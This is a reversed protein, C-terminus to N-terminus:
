GRRRCAAARQWPRSAPAAPELAKPGLRPVKLLDRRLRFRATSPAASFASACRKVDLLARRTHDTITRLLWDVPLCEHMRDLHLLDLLDDEDAVVDVRATPEVSVHEPEGHRGCRIPQVEGADPRLVKPRGLRSHHRMRSERAPEVEAQLDGRGVELAGDVVQPALADLDLNTGLPRPVHELQGFGRVCAHLPPMEPTWRRPDTSIKVIRGDRVHANVVCRGGCNHGCTSTVVTEGPAAAVRPAEYFIKASM